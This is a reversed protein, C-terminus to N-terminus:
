RAGMDLGSWVFHLEFFHPEMDQSLGANSFRLQIERFEGSLDMARTSFQGGALTSTDLTFDAM